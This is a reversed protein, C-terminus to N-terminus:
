VKFIFIRVDLVLDEASEDRTPVCVCVCVRVILKVYTYLIASVRSDHPPDRWDDVTLAPELQVPHPEEM